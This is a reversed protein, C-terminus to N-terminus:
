YDLVLRVEHGDPWSIILAQVLLDLRREKHEKFEFRWTAEKVPHEDARQETLLTAVTRPLYKVTTETDILDSHYTRIVRKVSETYDEESREELYRECTVWAKSQLVTVLCTGDSTQGRWYFHGDRIVQEDLLAQAHASSPCRKRYAQVFHHHNMM